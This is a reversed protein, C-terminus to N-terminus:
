VFHLLAVKRSSAIQCLERLLGILQLMKEQTETNESLDFEHAGFLIGGGSRQGKMVRTEPLDEWRVSQSKEFLNAWHIGQDTFAIGQKAGGFVTTDLLGFVANVNAPIYSSYAGALKKGRLKEGILLSPIQYGALVEEILERSVTWSRGRDVPATAIGTYKALNRPLPPTLKTLPVVRQAIPRKPQFTSAQSSIQNVQAARLDLLLNRLLHVRVNTGELNLQQGNKLDITQEDVVEIETTEFTAWSLFAAAIGLDDRPRWYLGADTILLGSQGLPFAGGDWLAILFEGSGVGFLRRLQDESRELQADHSVYIGELRHLRCAREVRLRAPKSILPRRSRINAGAPRGAAKQPVGGGESAPPQLDSPETSVPKSLDARTTTTESSTLGPEELGTNNGPLKVSSEDIPEVDEGSTLPKSRSTSLSPSTSSATSVTANVGARPAADDAASRPPLVVPAPTPAQRRARAVAKVYNSTQIQKLALLSLFHLIRQEVGTLVGPPTELLLSVANYEELAIYGQLYCSELAQEMLDLLSKTMGEAVRRQLGNRRSTARENGPQRDLVQTWRELAGDFDQIRELAEAESMLSRAQRQAETEHQTLFVRGRVSGKQMPNM